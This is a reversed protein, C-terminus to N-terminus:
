QERLDTGAAAESVLSMLPWKIEEQTDPHAEELPENELNM